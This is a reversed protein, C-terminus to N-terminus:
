ELRARLLTLLAAEEPQLRALEDVLESEVEAEIELLLKGELYASMVEPHIYCKRCITPTNGLRASVAAIAAKLNRKAEALTEFIEAERLALAALVTGAWTRFDKATVDEGSIEKLYSNVDGSTVVHLRGDEDAYRLLDQGPLEQCARIVNAVRRDRLKLSWQKGSKGVFRFRIESGEIAVHRNKLTTLGFSKNRRAYDDNGVRILTAELLHVVTALVKERSLGRQAMHKAVTARITPLAEAFAFMHEFKAGERMERFAQHYRYQKRGKADRGTAQIHGDAFPCLWVDTWAPPVALAKLRRIVHRNALRAGGPLLYVFGTGARRRRIGPIDDAIYRLGNSEATERADLITQVDSAFDLVPAGQTRDRSLRRQLDTRELLHRSARAISRAEFDREVL